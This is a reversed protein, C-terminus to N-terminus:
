RMLGVTCVQNVYRYQSLSRRVYIFGPLFLKFLVRFMRFYNTWHGHPLVPCRTKVGNITFVSTLIRWWLEASIIIVSVAFYQAILFFGTLIRYHVLSGSWFENSVSRSGWSFFWYNRIRLRIRFAIWNRIQIWIRIKRRVVSQDFKDRKKSM